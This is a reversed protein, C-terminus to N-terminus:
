RVMQNGFYALVWGDMLHDCFKFVM